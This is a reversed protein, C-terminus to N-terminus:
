PSTAPRLARVIPPLWPAIVLAFLMVFLSNDGYLDHAYTICGGSSRMPLDTHSAMVLLLPMALALAAVSWTRGAIHARAAAVISLELVVRPIFTLPGDCRAWHMQPQSAIFAFNFDMAVLQGFYVALMGMVALTLQARKPTAPSAGVDRTFIFAYLITSAAPHPALASFFVAGAAFAPARDRQLAPLLVLAVLLAPLHEYLWPALQWVDRLHLALVGFAGAVAAYLWRPSPWRRAGEGLLAGILYGAAAGLPGPIYDVPGHTAAFALAYVAWALPLFRLRQM